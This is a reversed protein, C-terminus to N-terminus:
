ALGRMHNEIHQTLIDARVPKTLYIDMGSQKSRLLYDAETHASLAIILAPTLQNSKEYARIKETAEFGDMIPMECDMIITRFPVGKKHYQYFADLAQRGNSHTIPKLNISKIIEEIILQNTPIDEAILINKSADPLKDPKIHFIRDKKILSEAINLTFTDISPKRFIFDYNPHESLYESTNGLEDYDEYILLAINNNNIFKVISDTAFNKHLVILDAPKKTIFSDQITHGYIAQNVQENTCAAVVDEAIDVIKQAIGNVLNADPDALVVRLGTFAGHAKRHTSHHIKVKASFWFTSGITTNKKYGCNGGMTHSLEKVISLGVGSGKPNSTSHNSEFIQFLKEEDEKNIGQGSDIVEFTYIHESGGIAADQRVHLGVIGNATFKCANGILNILMQRLRNADTTIDSTVNNDMQFYLRIKKDHAILLFIDICEQLLNHLDFRTNQLENQNKKISKESVMDEILHKLPLATHYIMSFVRRDKPIHSKHMLIESAGLIGNLPTRLEHNLHSLLNSHATSTISAEAALQAQVENEEQLRRISLLIAIAFLTASVVEVTQTLAMFNKPANIFGLTILIAIICNILPILLGVCMLTNSLKYQDKQSLCLYIFYLLGAFSITDYIPILLITQTNLLFAVIVLINISLYIVLFLKVRYPLNEHYIHHAIFFALSSGVILPMIISLNTLSTDSIVGLFPYLFEQHIFLTGALFTGYVYYAFYAKQHIKIALILSYLALGCLIGNILGFYLRQRYQQSIYADPSTLSLTFFQSHFGTSQTLLVVSQGQQLSFSQLNKALSLDAAPNCSHADDPQLCVFTTTTDTIPNSDRLYLTRAEHTDNKIFARYWIAHRRHLALTLPRQNLAGWHSDPLQM